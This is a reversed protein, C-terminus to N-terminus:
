QGGSIGMRFDGVGVYRDRIRGIPAFSVSEHDKAITVAPLGFELRIYFARSFSSSAACPAPTSCRKGICWIIECRNGSSRIVSASSNAALGSFPVKFITIVRWHSSLSVSM